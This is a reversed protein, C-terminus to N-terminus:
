RPWCAHRVSSSLRSGAGRSSGRRRPGGSEAPLCVPAVRHLNDGDTVIAVAASHGGTPLDAYRGDATAILMPLGTREVDCPPSSGPPVFHYRSTPAAGRRSNTGLVLRKVAPDSGAGGQGPPFSVRTPPSPPFWCASASLALLRQDPHRCPLARWEAQDACRIPACTREWQLWFSTSSVRFWGKVQTPVAPNSGAVGQGGPICERLRPRWLRRDACTLLRMPSRSSAPPLVQSCFASGNASGDQFVALGSRRQGNAALSPPKDPAAAEGVAIWSGIRSTVPPRPEPQWIRRRSWGPGPAFM